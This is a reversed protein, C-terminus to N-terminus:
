AERNMGRHVTRERSPYARCSFHGIGYLHIFESPGRRNNRQYYRRCRDFVAVGLSAGLFAIMSGFSAAEDKLPGPVQRILRIYHATEFISYSCGVAILTLVLPIVGWEMNVVALAVSFGMAIVSGVVLITRCGHSECIKGIPISLLVVVVSIVAFYLGSEVTDMGLGMEFYYPVLFLVGEVLMTALLMSTALLKFEKNSVISQSIVGEDRQSHIRFRLLLASIAAIAAYVFVISGGDAVDEFFMLTSAILIVTLLSGIVDFKRTETRTGKPIFKISLILAAVCIPINIAFVYPWGLSEEIIAGLTPALVMGAGAGTLMAGTVRGQMDSPFMTVIIVPITSAALVAGFGMMVRFAILIWYSGSFSCLVSGAIFIVLGSILMVRSHGSKAVRSFPILLACLVLEYGLVLWSGDSVGINFYMAVSPGAVFMITADMFDMFSVLSIILIIPLYRNM